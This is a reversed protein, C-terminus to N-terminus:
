SICPTLIFYLGLAFFNTDTPRATRAVSYPTLHLSSTDRANVLYNFHSFIAFWEVIADLHHKQM